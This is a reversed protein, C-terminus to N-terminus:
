WQGRVCSGAGGTGTAGVPEAMEPVTINTVPAEGAVPVMERSLEGVAVGLAGCNGSPNSDTPNQRAEDNGTQPDGNRIRVASLIGCIPGLADNPTSQRNRCVSSCACNRCPTGRAVCSCGAQKSTPKRACTSSRSCQCCAVIMKDTKQRKAAQSAQADRTTDVRRPASRSLFYNASNPIASGSTAVPRSANAAPRQENRSAGKERRDAGGRGVEVWGPQDSKRRPRAMTAHHAHHHTHTHTHTTHTTTWVCGCVRGLVLTITLVIYGMKPVSPWARHNPGCGLDIM